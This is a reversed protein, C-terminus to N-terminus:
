FEFDTLDELRYWMDYPDIVTDGYSGGNELYRAEYGPCPKAGPEIEYVGTKIRVEDYILRVWTDRPMGAAIMDSALKQLHEMDEVLRNSITAM